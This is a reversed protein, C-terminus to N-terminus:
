GNRPKRTFPSRETRSPVLFTKVMRLPATLRWSRSRRLALIEQDRVAVRGQVADLENRLDGAEQEIAAKAHEDSRRLREEALSLHDETRRLQQTLSAARFELRVTNREAAERTAELEAELNRMRAGLSGLEDRLRSPSRDYATNDGFRPTELVAIALSELDSVRILEFGRGSEPVLDLCEDPVFLLGSEHAVGFFNAENRKPNGPNFAAARYVFRSYDTWENARFLKVGDEVSNCEVAVVPRLRDITAAMGVVVDADMGEADIKVLHCAPFEYGDLTVIAVRAGQQNSGVPLLRAAGLNVHSTYDVPPVIMEGPALGVGAHVVHVNRHKFPAVNRELLTVLARQPEFSLVSGTPGVRRAFAITHTGINAGVDIVTSGLGVFACLLEIEYPAWEGYEALSRGIPDDNEFFYLVGYKTVLGAIGSSSEDTTGRIVDL